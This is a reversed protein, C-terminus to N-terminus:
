RAERGVLCLWLPECDVVMVRSGPAFIAISKINAATLFRDPM